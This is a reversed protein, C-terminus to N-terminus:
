ELGISGVPNTLSEFERQGDTGNNTKGGGGLKGSHTRRSRTAFRRGGIAHTAVAREKDRECKQRREGSKHYTAEMTIPHLPQAGSGDLGCGRRTRGCGDGGGTRMRFVAVDLFDAAKSRLLLGLPQEFEGDMAGIKGELQDLPIEGGPAPMQFVRLMEEM